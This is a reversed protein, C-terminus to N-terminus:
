REEAAPQLFINAGKKAITWVGSIYGDVIQFDDDQLAKITDLGGGLALDYTVQEHGRFHGHLNAASRGRSMGVIKFDGEIIVNKGIAMNERPDTSLGRALAESRYPYCDDSYGTYFHGEHVPHPAVGWTKSKFSIERIKM